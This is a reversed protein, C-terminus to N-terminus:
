WHPRQHTRFISDGLGGPNDCTAIEGRTCKGGRSEGEDTELRSQLEELSEANEELAARDEPSHKGDEVAGPM